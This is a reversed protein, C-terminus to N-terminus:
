DTTEQPIQVRQQCGPCKGARGAYAQPVIIRQGCVCRFRLKGPPPMDIVGGTIDVTQIKPSPVVFNHESRTLLAAGKKELVAQEKRHRYEAFIDLLSREDREMEVWGLRLLLIAAGAGAAFGGLHAFYAVNGWGMMAGAVDFVFWLGIIYFGSVTIPRIYLGFMMLCNIDNLAYFVLYMGVVGNIAGSAGIAPGGTFVLHSLAAVLGFLLYLPVFSFNGVKACVANGFVFLFWLNGAIHFFDAHLWMHGLLGRLGFGDLVFVEIAEPDPSTVQLFFAFVVSAILLWNIVPRRDLPVDVSLPLFM